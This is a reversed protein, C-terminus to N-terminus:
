QSNFSDPYSSLSAAVHSEEQAMQLRQEAMIVNEQCERKEYQLDVIEENIQVLQEQLNAREQKKLIRNMRVQEAKRTRKESDPDMHVPHPHSSFGPDRLQDSHEREPFSGCIHAPSEVFVLTGCGTAEGTMPSCSGGSQLGVNVATMGRERALQTSTDPLQPNDCRNFCDNYEAM